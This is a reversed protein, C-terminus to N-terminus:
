VRRGTPEDTPPPSSLLTGMVSGNVIVNGSPVTVSM